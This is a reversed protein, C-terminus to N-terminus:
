LQMQGKLKRALLVAYKTAFQPTARDFCSKIFPNSHVRHMDSATFSSEISKLCEEEFYDARKKGRPVCQVRRLLTEIWQADREEVPLQSVPYKISDFLAKEIELMCKKRYDESGDTEVNAYCWYEEISHELVVKYGLSRATQAM